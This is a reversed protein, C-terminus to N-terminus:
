VLHDFEGKKAGDIWAAIESKTYGLVPGSKDKSDRVLILEGERSMEVCNDNAGSAKAKVWVNDSV